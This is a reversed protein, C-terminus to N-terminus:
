TSTTLRWRNLKGVDAGALDAVQLRWTGKMPTGIFPAVPGNGASRYSTILNDSSGGSRGHVKVTMGTPGILSVELDGIYAHTIDVDLVLSAITGDASIALDSHVGARDNDPILLGPSAEVEVVSGAPPVTIQLAWSNLTGVDRAARDAVLLTWTGGSARGVLAALGAHLASQWSERIDDQSGGVRQALPVRTGDPAVLTVELDGRYPHKIDVSVQVARIAGSEPVAITSAIGAPDNDPIALAVAAAASVQEGPEPERTPDPGAPPTFDPVIGTLHEAGSTRAGPGMGFHAFVEWVTQVFEGRDAADDGRGASYRDAALLIADRAGLFSPNASTLKLGDVVVQAAEWPGIRRSLTMLTACWIEGIEHVAEDVYRGTGLSAFTDPFNDDYPFARIGSARNVVWDGVVTKGLAICAFFDSWGEGMGGSQVADLSSDDLPGGVLRNTLGHTYEHFVVDPDLATHRSTSTVLGMNMTPRSGDPPTGMNATGYVAQPHVRAYVPDASRGGRGENTTQFNGDAERFGLLYLLDHMSSCLAFLNVVLNDTHDDPVAPAFRVDSNALSGQVTTAGPELVSVVSAGRTSADILWPYPFGAPLGPPVPPGYSDAPRPMTIHQRGDGAVLVVDAAGTVQRTLRRALLIREDRADVLLRYVAGGPVALKTHWSLRLTGDLPFWMLAVTVAHEFPPADFTAPRDPRGAGATRPVPAFDKLDLGPEALPQGFADLAAHEAPEPEAVHAAAIRLAEEASVTPDVPVDEEVTISRGAVELLRGDADFRVTAAGDYIPIGKYQQRLHVAAAGTSTQQVQPDAVYEPAQSPGLGMAPGIRQVHRLARAALSGTEPDADASTIVAANGTVSDISEVSITHTGPLVRASVDRAADRLAAHRRGDVPDPATRVDIQRAM